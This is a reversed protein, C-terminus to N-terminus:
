LGKRKLTELAEKIRFVEAESPDVHGYRQAQYAETITHVGTNGTRAAFEGATEDRRKKLGKKEIIRLMETYYGPIKSAKGAFVSRRLAWAAVALLAAAVVLLVAGEPGKIRGRAHLSKKLRALMGTTSSGLTRGMNRQDVSTFYVIYRNWRWRLLDVYHAFVTPTYVPGGTPPPTPDFRKWGVGDIYAEVWSHSDQGRVIYYGGLENWEDPLFGTVVRTPVGVARLLVAMATAYHECFGEKSYFLFDELPGKAPDRAPDLSYTYHSNLYAQVAAAKLAPAKRGRTISAALGRIREGEPGTELFDLDLYGGKAVQAPDEMMPGGTSWATYELRTYPPSPLRVTGTSDVWLNRFRGEISAMFPAGFLVETELPELVIRQEFLDGDMRGFKFVGNPNRLLRKKKLKESWAMGDYHDLTTGRIYLPGATRRSPVIRMLVSPDKKIEGMSGLVVTDSFGSVKITNATKHQFVGVGMRPIIFFLLFTMALSAASVAFISIFFPAGFINGSIELKGHAAYYDSKISFIIMAWIGGVIFMTLIVIFLPSITSAAAALLQFFILGFVIFYDRNRKLDFLKLVLLVTVFRTASLILSASISAYDIVFFVMMALAMYNWVRGPIMRGKKINYVLSLLIFSATIVVFPTGVAEILSIALVGLAAMLYTIILTYTSFRM